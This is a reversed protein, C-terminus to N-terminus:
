EIFVVISKEICIGMQIRQIEEKWIIWHKSSSRILKDLRSPVEILTIGTLIAGIFYYAENM